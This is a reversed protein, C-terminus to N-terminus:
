VAKPVPAPRHNALQSDLGPARSQSRERARRRRSLPVIM